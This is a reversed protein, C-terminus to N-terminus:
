REFSFVTFLLCVAIDWLQLKVITNEDWQIVIMVFDVGITPKYPGVAQSHAYRKLVSTKGVGVEGVVLIKLVYEVLPKQPQQPPRINNNSSM